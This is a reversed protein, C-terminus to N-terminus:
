TIAQVAWHHCRISLLNLLIVPGIFNVVLNTVKDSLAIYLSFGFGDKLGIKEALQDCLERSTIASDVLLTKTHWGHVHHTVRTIEQLLSGFAGRLLSRLRPSRRPHFGESLQRIPLFSRFLRRM